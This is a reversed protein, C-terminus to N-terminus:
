KVVNLTVVVKLVEGSIPDTASSVQATQGDRLLLTFSSNFNRLIPGPGGTDGAARAASAVSSQEILLNLKFRGDPERTIRCNIGNGVDKYAVTVTNNAVVSVPVQVGIDLSSDGPTKPDDPVNVWLENPMSSTKKDGDYRTLVVQVRVPTFGAQAPPQPPAQAFAPSVAVSSLLTFAVLGRRLM